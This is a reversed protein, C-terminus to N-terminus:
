IIVGRRFQTPSVGTVRKFSASFYAGSSYSLRKAIEDNKLGERLLEKARETKLEEFVEMVTKNAYKAFVRKVYSVSFFAAEAVDELTIKNEVNERLIEYIERAAREGAGRGAFLEDSTERVGNRQAFAEIIALELTGRFSQLAAHSYGIRPIRNVYEGVNGFLELCDELTRRLIEKLFGDARKPKSKEINFASKIELEAAFVRSVEGNPTIVATVGKPAIFLSSEAKFTKGDCEVDVPEEAYVLTVFDESGIKFPSNIARYCLRGLSRVSCCKKLELANDM